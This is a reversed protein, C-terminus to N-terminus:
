RDEGEGGWLLYGSHWGSVQCFIAKNIGVAIKWRPRREGPGVAATKDSTSHTSSYQFLGKYTNTNAFGNIPFQSILHDQQTM